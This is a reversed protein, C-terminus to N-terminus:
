SIGSALFAEKYFFAFFLWGEPAPTRLLGDCGRLAASEQV